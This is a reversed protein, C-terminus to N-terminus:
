AARVERGFTAKSWDQAARSFEDQPNDRIWEETESLGCHRWMKGYDPYELIKNRCAYYAKNALLNIADNPPCTWQALTSVVRRLYYYEVPVEWKREEGWDDLLFSLVITEASLAYAYPMGDQPGNAMISKELLDHKEGLDRHMASSHRMGSFEDKMREVLADRWRRIQRCKAHVRKRNEAAMELAPYAVGQVTKGAFDWAEEIVVTLALLIPLVAKRRAEIYAAKRAESKRSM